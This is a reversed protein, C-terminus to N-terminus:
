PNRVDEGWADNSIPPIIVDNVPPKVAGAIATDVFVAPMDPASNRFVLPPVVASNRKRTASLLTPLVAFSIVIDIGPTPVVAVKNPWVLDFIAVIKVLVWLPNP